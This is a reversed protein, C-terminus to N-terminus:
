PEKLDQKDMLNDVIDVEVQWIDKGGVGGPRNSSFFLTSGDPSISLTDDHYSTNVAPGLNVPTVWDDETTPRTTGWFDAGGSGGPRTSSFFLTLGDATIFPADDDYLSNVPPGFNAPTGWPDSVTQRTTVWIDSGGYGGPRFPSFLESFYLQLGDASISTFGDDGSSNVTPGLNVPTGWEDEITTRTTVWIDRKGYGVPRWSYFFLSLGDASLRPYIETYSSNVIPGLNTPTGFTLLFEWSPEIIQRWYTIARRRASQSGEADGISRLLDSLNSLLKSLEYRCNPADAVNDELL